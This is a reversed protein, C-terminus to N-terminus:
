VGNTGEREITQKNPKGEKVSREKSGHGENDSGGKARNEKGEMGEKRGM